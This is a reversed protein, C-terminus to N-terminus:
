RSLGFSLGLSIAFGRNYVAVPEQKILDSLGHTYRGDLLLRTEPAILYNLGIGGSFGLDFKNFGEWSAGPVPEYDADGAKNKAGLLFAFSTGAFVNPRFKGSRTLFFRGLLPFELYNLQQKYLVSNQTHQSGRQHYLAKFTFGFTTWISHTVHAGAVLGTKYDQPRALDGSHRAFSIGAEPGISWTRQATAQLCALSLLLTM